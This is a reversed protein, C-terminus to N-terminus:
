NWEQIEWGPMKERWTAICRQILPSKEGRGFWCYHIVKPLGKATYEM